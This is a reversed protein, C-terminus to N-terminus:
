QHVKENLFNRWFFYIVYLFLFQLIKIMINMLIEEKLLVNNGWLMHSFISNLIVIILAVSVLNFTASIFCKSLSINNNLYFYLIFSMLFLGVFYRFFLNTIGPSFSDSIYQFAFNIAGLIYFHKINEKRFVKSKDGIAAWFLVVAELPNFILLSLFVNM